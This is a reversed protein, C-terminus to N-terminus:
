AVGPAMRLQWIGQMVEQDRNARISFLSTTLFVIPHRAALFHVIEFGARQAYVQLEQPVHEANARILERHFLLTTALGEVHFFPLFGGHAINRLTGLMSLAQPTSQVKKNQIALELEWAIEGFAQETEEILTNVRGRSIATLLCGLTFLAVTWVLMM